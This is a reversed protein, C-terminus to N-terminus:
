TRCGRRSARPRSRPRRFFRGGPTLTTTQPEVSAPSSSTSRLAKGGSTTVMRAGRWGSRNLATSCSSDCRLAGNRRRELHISDGPELRQPCPRGARNSRHAPRPRNVRRGPRQPRRGRRAPLGCDAPARAIQRARLSPVASRFSGRCRRCAPQCCVGNCHDFNCLYLGCQMPQQGVLAAARSIPSRARLTKSLSAPAVSVATSASSAITPSPSATRSHAARLREQRGEHREVSGGHARFIDGVVAAPDFRFLEGPRYDAHAIEGDASCPLSRYDDTERLQKGLLAAADIHEGASIAAAGLFDFAHVRFAGGLAIAVLRNQDGALRMREQRHRGSGSRPRIRQRSRIM